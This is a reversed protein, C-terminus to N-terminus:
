IQHLVRKVADTYSSHNLSLQISGCIRIEPKHQVLVPKKKVPRSVWMKTGMSHQELIQLKKMSSVNCYNTIQIALVSINNNPETRQQVNKILQTTQKSPIWEFLRQWAPDPSFRTKGSILVQHCSIVSWFGNFLHLVGFSHIMLEGSKFKNLLWTGM